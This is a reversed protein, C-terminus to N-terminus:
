RLGRSYSYDRIIPNQNSTPPTAMPMPSQNNGGVNNTTVNNNILGVKEAASKALNATDETLEKVSEALSTGFAPLLNITEGNAMTIEGLKDLKEIGWDIVPEVYSKYTDEFGKTIGSTINDKLVKMDNDWQQQRLTAEAKPDGMDMMSSIDQQLAKEQAEKLKKAEEAKKLIEIEEDSTGYLGGFVAGIAGLIGLAKGIGAGKGPGINKGSQTGRPGERKIEADSVNGNPLRPAESASPAPLQKQANPLEPQAPGTVVPGKGQGPGPFGEPLPVRSGSQGPTGPQSGGRRFWDGLDKMVDWLKGIAASLASLATSLLSKLGEVIMSGLNSLMTGLGALLSAGLAMLGLGGGGGGEGAANLKEAIAQALLERDKTKTAEEFNQRIFRIDEGQLEAIFMMQQQYKSPGFLKGLASKFFGGESDDKTTGKNQIRNNEKQRNQEFYKKIEHTLYVGGLLVDKKIDQKTKEMDKRLSRFEKNNEMISAALKKLVDTQSRLNEGQAKITNFLEKEAASMPSPNQPLPM